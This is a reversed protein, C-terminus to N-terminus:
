AWDKMAVSRALRLEHGRIAMARNYSVNAMM